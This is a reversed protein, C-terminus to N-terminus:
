IPVCLVVCAAGEVGLGGWVHWTHQKREWQTVPFSSINGTAGVSMYMSHYLSEHLEQWDWYRSGLAQFGDPVAQM